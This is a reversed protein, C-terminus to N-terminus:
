QEPEWGPALCGNSFTYKAGTTKHVASVLADTCAGDPRYEQAQRIAEEKGQPTSEGSSILRIALLGSLIVFVLVLSIVLKKKMSM